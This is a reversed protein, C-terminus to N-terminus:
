NGNGRHPDDKTEEVKEAVANMVFERRKEYEYPEFLEDLLEDNEMGMRVAYRYWTSKNQGAILRDEVWESLEDDLRFSTQAM